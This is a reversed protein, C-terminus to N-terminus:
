QVQSLVMIYHKNIKVFEHYAVAVKGVVKAEVVEVQLKNGLITCDVEIQRPAVVTVTGVLAEGGITQNNHLVL